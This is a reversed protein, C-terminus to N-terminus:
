KLYETEVNDLFCITKKDNKDTQKSSLLCVSLNEQLNNLFFKLFCRANSFRLDPQKNLQESWCLFCALRIKWAIPQCFHLM